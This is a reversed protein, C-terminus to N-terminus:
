KLYKRPKPRRAQLYNLAGVKKLEELGGITLEEQAIESPEVEVRSLGKQFDNFNITHWSLIAKSEGPFVGRSTWTRTNDDIDELRGNILDLKM